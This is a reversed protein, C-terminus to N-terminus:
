PLPIAQKMRELYETLVPDNAVRKVLATRVPTARIADLVPAISMDAATPQDGFLFPSQGVITAIARLDREVQELREQPSFRAIGQTDLGTLLNARIGDAVPSRAPEPIAAFLQDRITPWGDDNGWRDMVLQFYLHEDAMRIMARSYAKQLDSLGPDFDAGKTELWARIAESDSVLGSDTRLVPLKRHPMASPEILDERQWQQGSAQLLYAAKVCFPSLSFLGFGSSFTLLTLM